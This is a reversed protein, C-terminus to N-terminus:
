EKFLSMLQTKLLSTSNYVGGLWCAVIADTHEPLGSYGRRKKNKRHEKKGSEVRNVSSAAAAGV